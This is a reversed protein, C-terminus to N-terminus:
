MSFSLYIFMVARHTNTQTHSDKYAPIVLGLVVRIDLGSIGNGFLVHVCASANSVGEVRQITSRPM